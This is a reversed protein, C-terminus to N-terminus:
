NESPQNLSRIGLAYMRERQQRQQAYFQRRIETFRAQLEMLVAEIARHQERLEDATM